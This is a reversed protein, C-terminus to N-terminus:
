WIFNKKLDYLIKSILFCFIFFTMIISAYYPTLITLTIYLNQMTLPSKWVVYILFFKLKVWVKLFKKLFISEKKLINNIKYAKTKM